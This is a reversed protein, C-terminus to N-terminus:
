LRASAVRPRRSAARKPVLRELAHDWEAAVDFGQDTWLWRLCLGDMMAQLQRAIAAPDEVHPGLLRSFLDMVVADRRRWWQHAPHSPNLAEVQLEAMFRLLEPRGTARVVITRLVDLLALRAREGHLEREAAEVLPAMVEIEGTELEQLAALFLQDKSPFHHLLGANSLGCAKALEQVTFGYYGREGIVRIAQDLIHARRVAPDDRPRVAPM